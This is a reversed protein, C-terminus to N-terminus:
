QQYHHYWACLLQLYVTRRKRIREWNQSTAWGRWRECRSGPLVLPPKGMLPMGRVSSDM